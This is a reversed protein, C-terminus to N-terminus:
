PSIFDTGNDTKVAIYLGEKISVPTLILDIDAISFKKNKHKLIKQKTLTM